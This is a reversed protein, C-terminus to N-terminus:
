GDIVGRLAARAEDREAIVQKIKRYTDASELEEIYALLEVTIEKLFSHSTRGALERKIADIDPRTM